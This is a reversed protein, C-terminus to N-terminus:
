PTSRGPRCRSESETREGPTSAGTVSGNFPVTVADTAFRGLRVLSPPKAEDSPVSVAASCSKTIRLSTLRRLM